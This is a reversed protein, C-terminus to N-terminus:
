GVETAILQALPSQVHVLRQGDVLEQVLQLLLHHWVHRELVDHHILDVFFILAQKRLAETVLQPVAARQEGLCM